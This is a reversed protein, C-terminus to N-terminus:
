EVTTENHSILRYLKQSPKLTALFSYSFLCSRHAKIILILVITKMILMTMMILIEIVVLM